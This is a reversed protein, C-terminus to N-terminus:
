KTEELENKYKLWLEVNAKSHEGMVEEDLFKKCQYNKVDTTKYYNQLYARTTDIDFGWSTFLDLVQQKPSVEPKPPEIDKVEPEEETNYKTRDKAYYVDAGMGIAKCAVSIADTLAMKFCEDSTYMGEKEKAVFKNGGVGPIAESWEGDQKYYLDVTVFCAIQGDGAQELRQERIVYKWGFGCAGFMETLKKIRWMPNIDTMGKLRGAGIQKQAEPPVTKCSNYIDMNM